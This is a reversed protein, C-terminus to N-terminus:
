TTGILLSFNGDKKDISAMKDSISIGFHDWYKLKLAAPIFIPFTM